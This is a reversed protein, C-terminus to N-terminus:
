EESYQGNENKILKTMKKDAAKLKTRCIDALKNAQEYLEVMQTLPTDENELKKLITELQEIATEFTMKDEKIVM